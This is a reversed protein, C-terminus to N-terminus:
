YHYGKRPKIEIKTLSKTDLVVVPNNLPTALRDGFNSIVINYACVGGFNEHAAFKKVFLTEKESTYQLMPCVASFSKSSLTRIVALSQAVIM